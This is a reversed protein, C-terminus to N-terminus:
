SLKLVTKSKSKQVIKSKNVFMNLISNKEM